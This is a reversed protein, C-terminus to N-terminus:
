SSGPFQPRGYSEGGTHLSPVGGCATGTRKCTAGMTRWLETLTWVMQSRISSYTRYSLMSERHERAPHPSGRLESPRFGGPWVALLCSERTTHIAYPLTVLCRTM